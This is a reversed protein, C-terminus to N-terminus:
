DERVLKWIWDLVLDILKGTASPGWACNNVADEKGKILQEPHIFLTFIGTQVEDAMPLTKPGVERVTWNGVGWPM